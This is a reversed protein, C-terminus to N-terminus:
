LVYAKLNFPDKTKAANVKVPTDKLFIIDVFINVSQYVGTLLDPRIEIIVDEDEDATILQFSHALTRRENNQFPRWTAFLRVIHTGKLFIPYPDDYPPTPLNEIQEETKGYKFYKKKYWYKQDLHYDQGIPFLNVYDKGWGEKSKSLPIVFKTNYEYGIIDLLRILCKIDYLRFEELKKHGRIIDIMHGTYTQPFNLDINGNSIKDTLYPYDQIEDQKVIYEKGSANITIEAM